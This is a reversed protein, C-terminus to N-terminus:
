GEWKKECREKKGGEKAGMMGGEELKSIDKLRCVTGMAIPSWPLHKLAHGLDVSKWVIANIGEAATGEASSSLNLWPWAGKRCGSNCTLSLTLPETGKCRNTSRTLPSGSYGKNHSHRDWGSEKVRIYINIQGEQMSIEDWFRSGTSSALPVSLGGLFSPLHKLKGLPIGQLDSQGPSRCKSFAKSTIKIYM